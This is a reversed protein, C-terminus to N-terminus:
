QGQTWLAVKKSDPFYLYAGFKIILTMGFFVALMMNSDVQEEQRALLAVEWFMQLTFGVLLLARSYAPSDLIYAALQALGLILFLSGWFQFNFLHTVIFFEKTTVLGLILFTGIIINFGIFCRVIYAVLPSARNLKNKM